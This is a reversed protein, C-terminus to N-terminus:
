RGFALWLGLAVLAILLALLAPSVASKVTPPAQHFSAFPEASAAPPAVDGGIPLAAAEREYVDHQAPAVRSRFLERGEAVEDRVDGAAIKAANYLRIDAVIARALRAAAEPDDIM